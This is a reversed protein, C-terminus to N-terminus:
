CGGVTALRSNLVQDCPTGGDCGIVPGGVLYHWGLYASLALALASLGTLVWCWWPSSLRFRTM